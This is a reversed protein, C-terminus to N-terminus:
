WEQRVPVPAVAPREIRKALILAPVSVAADIVALMVLGLAAAFAGMDVRDGPVLGALIVVVFVAVVYQFTKVTERVWRALTKRSIKM